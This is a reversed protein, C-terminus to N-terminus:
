RPSQLWAELDALDARAGPIKQYGARAERALAIARRRERGVSWLARALAFAIRPRQFVAIPDREAIERARELASVAERGSGRAMHCLGQGLRAVAVLPADSGQLEVTTSLGRALLPEAERCRDTLVFLIGLDILLMAWRRAARM